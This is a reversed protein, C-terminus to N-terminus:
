THVAPLTHGLGNAMTSSILCAQFPGPQVAAAFAYTAGIMLYLLM